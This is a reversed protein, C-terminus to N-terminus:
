GGILEEKTTPIPPLKEPVPEPPANAMGVLMMLSDEAHEKVVKALFEDIAASLKPYKM